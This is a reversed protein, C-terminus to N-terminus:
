EYLGKRESIVTFEIRDMAKFAVVDNFGILIIGRPDGWSLRGVEELSMNGMNGYMRMVLATGRRKGRDVGTKSEYFHFNPRVGPVRIAMMKYKRGFVWAIAEEIEVLPTDAKVVYM